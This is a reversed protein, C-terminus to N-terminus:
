LMKVDFYDNSPQKKSKFGTQWRSSFNPSKEAGSYLKTTMADILLQEM